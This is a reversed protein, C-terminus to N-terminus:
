KYKENMQQGNSHNIVDFQEQNLSFCDYKINNKELSIFCSVAETIESNNYPIYIGAM